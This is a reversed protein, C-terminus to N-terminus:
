SVKWFTCNVNAVGRKSVGGGPRKEHSSRRGEWKTSGKGVCLGSFNGGRVGDTKPNLCGRKMPEEGRTHPFQWEQDKETGGGRPFNKPSSSSRRRDIVIFHNPSETEM